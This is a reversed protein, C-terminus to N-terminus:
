KVLLQTEHIAACAAILLEINGARMKDLIRVKEEVYVRAFDPDYKGISSINDIFDAYKISQCGPSISGMRSAERAKREKRNLNPYREKTFTDSLQYVGLTIIDAETKTYGNAVLFDWFPHWTNIMTDEYLDHSVAIEWTLPSKEYACAIDAVNQLHTWYPEGTYKRVQDGHANVVFDWLLEQRKTREM